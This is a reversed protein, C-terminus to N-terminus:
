ALTSGGLSADKVSVSGAATIDEVRGHVTLRPTIYPLKRQAIRGDESPVHKTNSDM